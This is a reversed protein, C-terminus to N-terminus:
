LGAELKYLDLNLVAIDANIFRKLPMKACLRALQMVILLSGRSKDIM